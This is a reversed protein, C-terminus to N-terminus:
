FSILRYLHLFLAILTIEFWFPACILWPHVLSMLHMMVKVQFIAVVEKRITCKIVLPPTADFHCFTKPSKPLVWSSTM